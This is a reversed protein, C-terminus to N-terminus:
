ASNKLVTPVRRISGGKVAPQDYQQPRTRATVQGFHRHILTHAPWAPILTTGPHGGPGMLRKVRQPTPRRRRTAPLRRRLHTTEAGPDSTQLDQGRRDEEPLLHPRRRPLPTPLHCRHPPCPQTQPEREPQASAEKQRWLIGRHSRHRQLLRFAGGNPVPRHRGGVGLSWPCRARGCRRVMLLRVIRVWRGMSFKKGPTVM